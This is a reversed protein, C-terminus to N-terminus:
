REGDGGRESLRYVIDIFLEAADRHISHGVDPIIRMSGEGVDRMLRAQDEIPVFRSVEPLIWMTPQMGAINTAMPRLDWPANGAFAAIANDFDIQELSVLKWAADLRNWKPNLAMLGEITRPLHVKDWALMGTPTQKNAFHSVPDELALARPRFVGELVGVQALYGGFSHGILLDPETPISQAFDGLLAATSFSGDGCPSEGHGRMDPALVRWGRQAMLRAPKAFAGGNATIGHLAVATKQAAPDGWQMVNLPTTM